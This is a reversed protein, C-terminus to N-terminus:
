PGIQVKRAVVPLGRPSHRPRRQTSRSRSARGGEAIMLCFTVDISCRAWRASVVLVPRPLRIAQDGCSRWRAPTPSIGLSLLAEEGASSILVAPEDESEGVPPVLGSNTARWSM